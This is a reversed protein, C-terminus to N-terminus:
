DLKLQGFNTPTAVNYGNCIESDPNSKNGYRMYISGSKCVLKQGYLYNAFEDQKNPVGGVPTSYFQRQSNNRDFLRGNADQFLGKNFDGEVADEVAETKPTPYAPTEYRNYNNSIQPADYSTIPVNMFPNEGTPERLNPVTRTPGEIIDLYQNPPPNTYNRINAAPTQGSPLNPSNHSPASQYTSALYTPYQGVGRGNEGQSPHQPPYMQPYARPYKQPNPIAQVYGPNYIPYFFPKSSSLFQESNMNDQSYALFYVIAVLFITLLGIYLPNVSKRFVAIIISMIIIFRTIRNVNDEVSVNSTPWFYPTKFIISPDALWIQDVHENQLKDSIEPM